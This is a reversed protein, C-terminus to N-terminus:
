HFPLYHIETIHYFDYSFILSKTKLIDPSILKMLRTKISSIKRLYKNGLQYTSVHLWEINGFDFSISQCTQWTEEEWKELVETFNDKDDYMCMWDNILLYEYKIDLMSDILGLRLREFM